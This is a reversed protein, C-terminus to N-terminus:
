LMYLKKYKNKKINLELKIYTYYIIGIFNNINREYRYM